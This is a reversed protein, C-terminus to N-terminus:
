DDCQNIMPWTQCIRILMFNYLLINYKQNNVLNYFVINKNSTGIKFQKKRRDIADHIEAELREKPYLHIM